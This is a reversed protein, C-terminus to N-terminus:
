RCSVCKDLLLYFADQPTPYTHESRNRIIYM